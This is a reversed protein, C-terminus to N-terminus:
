KAVALKKKLAAIESDSSKETLEANKKKLELKQLKSQLEAKAAREKARM